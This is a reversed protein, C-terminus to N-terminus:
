LGKKLLYRLRRNKISTKQGISTVEKMTISQIFLNKYENMNYSFLLFATLLSIQKIM